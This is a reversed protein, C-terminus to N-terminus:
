PRLGEQDVVVRESGLLGPVDLLPLRAGDVEVLGQVGPGSNAELLEGEDITITRGVRDLALATLGEPTEVLAGLGPPSRAADLGLPPGPDVVSVVEGRHNTLGVVHDPTHPVPTTAEIRVFALVAELPIALRASGVEAIAASREAGAPGPEEGTAAQHQRRALEELQEPEFDEFLEGPERLREAGAPQGALEPLDVLEVLGVPTDAAAVIPEEDPERHVVDDETLEVVDVVGAVVLGLPGGDPVVDVVRHDLSYTDPDEGLALDLDVVPVEGEELHAAGIQGKREASTEALVPLWLVQRVRDAPLAYRGSSAEVVLFPGEPTM